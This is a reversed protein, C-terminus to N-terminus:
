RSKSYLGTGDQKSIRFVRAAFCQRWCENKYIAGWRLFSPTMTESLASHVLDPRTDGYLESYIESNSLIGFVGGENVSREGEDGRYIDFMLYDNEELSLVITSM